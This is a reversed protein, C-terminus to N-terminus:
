FYIFLFYFRFSYIYVYLHTTLPKINEERLLLDSPRDMFFYLPTIVIFDSYRNSKPSQTHHFPACPFAEPHTAPAM